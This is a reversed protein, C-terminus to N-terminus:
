IFVSLFIILAVFNWMTLDCNFEISFFSNESLRRYVQACRFFEFREIGKYVQTCAIISALAFSPVFSSRLSSSFSLSSLTPPTRRNHTVNSVHHFTIFTARCASAVAPLLLPSTTSSMAPVRPIGKLCPWALRKVDAAVNRGDRKRGIARRTSASNCDARICTEDRQRLENRCRNGGGGGGGKAKTGMERGHISLDTANWGCPERALTLLVEVPQRNIMRELLNILRREIIGRYNDGIREGDFDITWFSIIVDTDRAIKGLHNFLFFSLADVWRTLGSFSM